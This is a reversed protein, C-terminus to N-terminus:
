RRPRRQPYAIHHLQDSLRWLWGKAPDWQARTGGLPDFRWAAANVLRYLRRKV